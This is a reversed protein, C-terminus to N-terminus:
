VHYLVVEALEAENWGDESYMPRSSIRRVSYAVIQRIDYEIIYSYIFEGIPGRAENIGLHHRLNHDNIMRLMDVQFDQYEVDKAFVPITTTKIDLVALTMQSDIFVNRSEIDFNKYFISMNKIYPTSTIAKIEEVIGKILIRCTGMKEGNYFAMMSEVVADFPIYTAERNEALVETVVYDDEVDNEKCYKSLGKLEYEECLSFGFTHMLFQTIIEIIRRDSVTDIDNYCFYNILAAIFVELEQHVMGDREGFPTNFRVNDIAFATCRVKGDTINRIHYDFEKRIEETQYKLVSTDLDMDSRLEYTLFLNNLIMYTLLENVLGINLIYENENSLKHQDSLLFVETDTFSLKNSVCLPVYSTCYDGNCEITGQDTYDNDYEMNELNKDLIINTFEAIDKLMSM